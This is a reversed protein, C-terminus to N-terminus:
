ESTFVHHAQKIIIELLRQISKFNELGIMPDLSESRM